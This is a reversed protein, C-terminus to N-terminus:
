SGKNRLFVDVVPQQVHAAVYLFRCTCVCRAAACFLENIRTCVRNGEVMDSEVNLDCLSAAARM